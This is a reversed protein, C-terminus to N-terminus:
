AQQQMDDQNSAQSPPPFGNKVCWESVSQASWIRSKAYRPLPPPFEGARVMAEFKTSKCGILKLLDPKLMNQM